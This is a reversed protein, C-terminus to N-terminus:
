RAALLARSKTTGGSREHSPLVNNCRQQVGLCSEAGKIMIVALGLLRAGPKLADGPVTLSQCSFFIYTSADDAPAKLLWVAM